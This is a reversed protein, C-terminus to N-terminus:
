VEPQKSETTTAPLEKGQRMRAINDKHRYFVLIVVGIFVIAPKPGVLFYIEIPMLTSAVLAGLASVKSIRYTVLWVILSILASLPSLAILNGFVTAVGKGGAFRLYIPFCHGLITALGVLSALLIDQLLFRALLGCVVAKLMDSALTAAGLKKGLVRNMNTAGINGSGYDRIDVDAFIRGWLLGFPISGVLYAFIM